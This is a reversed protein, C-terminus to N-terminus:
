LDPPALICPRPSPRFQYHLIYFSCYVIYFAFCMNYMVCHVIPSTPEALAPSTVEGVPQAPEPEPEPERALMALVEEAQPLGHMGACRYGLPQTVLLESALHLYIYPTFRRSPDSVLVSQNEHVDGYSSVSIWTVLVAGTVECLEAVSQCSESYWISEVFEKEPLTVLSNM